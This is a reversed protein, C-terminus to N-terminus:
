RSSGEWTARIRDGETAAEMGVRSRSRLAEVYARGASNIRYRLRGRGEIREVLEPLRALVWNVHRVNMVREGDGEAMRERVDACSVAEAFEGLASLCRFARRNCVARRSVRSVGPLESFEGRVVGVGGSVGVGDVLADIQGFYDELNFENEIEVDAIDRPVDAIHPARALLGLSWQEQDHTMFDELTRIQDLRGRELHRSFRVRDGADIYIVLCSPYRNRFYVVEEIARFGTIVVGSELKDQYEYAIRRAVCDAGRRELLDRARGFAGATEVGGDEEALAYMEDSAEIHLWRHSAAVHKGFTTKGACVRGVVLLLASVDSFLTQQGVVAARRVSYARTPLNAIAAYEEVKDLLNGISRVRFDYKLSEEFEMEGLTKDSGHPVFWGNFTNPTLWPFRYSMEFRPATEAVSGSTEGRVFVTRELGPIYLGIDSYVTADRRNGRRRLERDLAEFTTQNFWEKVRLGPVMSGRCSLADLKLSTDEVFFLSNAGIRRRIEDLARRLLERRGRGYEERYPEQSERFYRLTLGRGQFVIRAQLFKEISSTHFRIVLQRSPTKGAITRRDGGEM